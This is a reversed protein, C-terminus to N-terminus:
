PSPRWGGHAHVVVGPLHRDAVPHRQHLAGYTRRPLGEEAAGEPGHHDPLAVPRLIPFACGQSPPATPRVAQQARESPRRRSGGHSSIHGHDCDVPTFAHAYIERAKTPRLAPVRNRIHLRPLERYITVTLPM